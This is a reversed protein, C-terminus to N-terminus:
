CRGRWTSTPTSCIPRWAFGSVKPPPLLLTAASTAPVGATAPAAAAPSASAPPVSADTPVASPAATGTAAPPPPGDKSATPASPGGLLSPRGQYRQWNDWLFLLSMAFIVWLVTRQFDM